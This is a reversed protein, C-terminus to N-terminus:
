KKERMFLFVSIYLVLAGVLFLAAHIQSVLLLYIGLISSALTAEYPRPRLISFVTLSAILALWPRWALVRLIDAFEPKSDALEVPALPFIDDVQERTLYTDSKRIQEIKELTSKYEGSDRPTPLFAAAFGFLFLSIFLLLILRILRKIRMSLM